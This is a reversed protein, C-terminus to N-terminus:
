RPPMPRVGVGGQELGPAYQRGDIMRLRRPEQDGAAQGGPLAAARLLIGTVWPEL